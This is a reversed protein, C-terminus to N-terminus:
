CTRLALLASRTAIQNRSRQESRHRTATLDKAGDAMRLAAMQQLKVSLSPLMKQSVHHSDTTLFRQCAAPVSKIEM